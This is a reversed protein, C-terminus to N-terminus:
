APPPRTSGPIFSAGPVISISLHLTDGEYLEIWAPDAIDPMGVEDEALALAVGCAEGLDGTLQRCRRRRGDAYRIDIQYSGM